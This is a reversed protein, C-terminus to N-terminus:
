QYADSSLFNASVIPFESRAQLSFGARAISEITPALLQALADLEGVFTQDFFINSEVLGRFSERSNWVISVDIEHTVKQGPLFARRSLL